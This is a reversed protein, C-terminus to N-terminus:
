HTCLSHAGPAVKHQRKYSGVQSSSLVRFHSPFCCSKSSLTPSVQGRDCGFLSSTSGGRERTCLLPSPPVCHLPLYRLALYGRSLLQFLTTLLHLFMTPVQSLMAEGKTSTGTSIEKTGQHLDDVEEQFCCCSDHQHKM